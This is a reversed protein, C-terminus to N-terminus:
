TTALALERNMQLTSILREGEFVLSKGRENAIGNKRPFLM